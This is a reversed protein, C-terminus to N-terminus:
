DSVPALSHVHLQRAVEGVILNSEKIELNSLVHILLRLHCSFPETLVGEEAVFLPAGELYEQHAKHQEVEQHLDSVVPAIEIGRRRLATLHRLTAVITRKHYIIIFEEAAANM